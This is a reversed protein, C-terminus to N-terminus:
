MRTIELVQASIQGRFSSQSKQGGGYENASVMGEYFPNGEVRMLIRVEPLKKLALKDQAVAARTYADETTYHVCIGGTSL